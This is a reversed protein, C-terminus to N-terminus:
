VGYNSKYVCIFIIIFFIVVFHKVETKKKTKYRRKEKTRKRGELESIRKRQKEKSEMPDLYEKKIQQDKKTKNQINPPYKTGFQHLDFAPSRFRTLFCFLRNTITQYSVFRNKNEAFCLWLLLM